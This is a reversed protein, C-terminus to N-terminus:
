HTQAHLTSPTERGQVQDAEGDQHVQLLIQPCPGPLSSGDRADGHLVCLFCLFVDGRLSCGEIGIASCTPLCVDLKIIIIKILEVRRGVFVTFVVSLQKLKGGKEKNNTIFYHSLTTNFFLQFLHSLKGPYLHDLASGFPYFSIVHPYQPDRAPFAGQPFSSEVRDGNCEWWLVGLLIGGDFKLRFEQVNVYVFPSLYAKGQNLGLVPPLLCGHRIDKM